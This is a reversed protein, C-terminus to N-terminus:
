KRRRSTPHIDMSMDISRASHTMMGVSIIDVDTKLYAALNERTIGGSAEVLINERLNQERLLALTKEVEIPKMNDLLVIDAGAKAAEVADSSRTAEVEIKKTFSVRSRAEKVCETISGGIALHNDKILVEDDLRLRHTDGGGLTVARKEFYRLGPLTKRTCAIRVPRTQKKEALQVLESTITAIGSMHCLLNLVTREVKLLSGAPGSAKLIESGTKVRDGDKISTKGKCGMIEFLAISERLGAIVAPENCVVNAVGEVSPQVLSDTTIDGYGLDEKLFSRLKEEIIRSEFEM